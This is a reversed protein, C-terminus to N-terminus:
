ARVRLDVVEGNVDAQVCPLPFGHKREFLDSTKKRTAEKDPQPAHYWHIGLARRTFHFRFGVRAARYSFDMDELGWGEFAQDFGGVAMFISRPMAMLTSWAFVWEGSTVSEGPRLKGYIRERSLKM